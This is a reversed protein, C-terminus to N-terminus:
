CIREESTYPYVEIKKRWTKLPLCNEHSGTQKGPPRLRGLFPDVRLSFFKSRRSCIRKKILHVWNMQSAVTCIVSNGGRFTYRNVNLTFEWQYPLCTLFHHLQKGQFHVWVGYFHVVYFYREKKDGSISKCTSIHKNGETQRAVNEYMESTVVLSHLNEQHKIYVKVNGFYVRSLILVRCVHSM